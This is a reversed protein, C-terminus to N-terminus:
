SIAGTDNIKPHMVTLEVAGDGRPGYWKLSKLAEKTKRAGHKVKAQKM